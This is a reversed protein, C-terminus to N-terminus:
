LGASSVDPRRHSAPAFDQCQISNSHRWFFVVTPGDFGDCSRFDFFEPWVWLREWRAPAMLTMWALALALALAAASSCACFLAGDTTQLSPHSEAGTTYKRGNLIDRFCPPGAAAFSIVVPLLLAGAVPNFRAFWSSPAYLPVM